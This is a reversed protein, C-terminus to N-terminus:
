IGSAPRAAFPVFITLMSGVSGPSRTTQMSCSRSPAFKRKRHVAFPVTFRMLRSVM